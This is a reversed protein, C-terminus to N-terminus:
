KAGKKLTKEREAEIFLEKEYEWEQVSITLLFPFQLLSYSKSNIVAKIIDIIQQNQVAFDKECGFFDYNKGHMKLSNRYNQHPNKSLSCGRYEKM